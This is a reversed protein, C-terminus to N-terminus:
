PSGVGEQRTSAAAKEELMETAVWGNVFRAVLAKTLLPSNPEAVFKDEYTPPKTSDAAALTEILAEGNENLPDVATGLSFMKAFKAFSSTGAIMLNSAALCHLGVLPNGGDIAGFTVASSLGAGFATARVVPTHAVGGATGSRRSQSPARGLPAADRAPGSSDPALADPRSSNLAGPAPRSSNPTVPSLESGNSALAGPGSRPETPASTAAPNTATPLLDVVIGNAELATAAASAVDAINSDSVLLVHVTTGAAKTYRNQQLADNLEAVMRLSSVLGVVSQNLRLDYYVEKRAAFKAARVRDVPPLHQL